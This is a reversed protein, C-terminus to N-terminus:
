IDFLLGIQFLFKVLKECICKKMTRLIKLIKKFFNLCILYIIGPPVLFGWGFDKKFFLPYPGYCIGFIRPIERSGMILDSAKVKEPNIMVSNRNKFIGHYWNPKTDKITWDSAWLWPDNFDSFM